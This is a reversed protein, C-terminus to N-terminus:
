PKNNIMKEKWNYFSIIKEITYLFKSGNLKNVKATWQELPQEASNLIADSSNRNTLSSKYM